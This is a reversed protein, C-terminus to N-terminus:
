LGLRNQYDDRESVRSEYFAPHVVPYITYDPAFRSVAKMLTETKAFLLLNQKYWPEVRGDNWFHWRLSGSGSFGQRAFREVWYAPWQENLHGHGGQGPIAASFVIIPASACLHEVLLDGAEAHIHEAVELCVALDHRAAFIPSSDAELDIHRFEVGGVLTPETVWEDYGTVACGAQAFERAFWGEGCGVDVVDNPECVEILVPVIAAASQQAGLRIQEYVEPTFLGDTM